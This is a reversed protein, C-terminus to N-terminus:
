SNPLYNILKFFNIVKAYLEKNSKLIYLINTLNIENTQADFCELMFYNIEELNNRKILNLINNKIFKDNEQEERTKTQFSISNIIEYHLNEIPCKYSIDLIELEDEIKLMSRKCKNIGDSYLYIANYNDTLIFDHLINKIIIENSYIKSFNKKDTRIIKIKNIKKLKDDKNWEFFDILGNTENITINYLFNM